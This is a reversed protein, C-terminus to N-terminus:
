FNAKLTVWFQRDPEYLQGGTSQNYGPVNASGNLRGSDYRFGLDLEYNTEPDIDWGNYEQREFYDPARQAVGFGAYYTFDDIDQGM